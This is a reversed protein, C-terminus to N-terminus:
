KEDEEACAEINEEILPLNLASSAKREQAENDAAIGVKETLLDNM